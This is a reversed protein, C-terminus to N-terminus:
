TDAKQGKLEDALADAFASAATNEGIVIIVQGSPAIGVARARAIALRASLPSRYLSGNVDYIVQTPADIAAIAARTDYGAIRAGDRDPLFVAAVVSVQDQNNTATLMTVADAHTLKANAEALKADSVATTWGPAAIPAIRDAPGARAIVIWGYLSLLTLGALGTLAARLSVHATQALWGGLPQRRGFLIAFGTLLSLFVAFVVLGVREHDEAIAIDGANIAMAIIIAVRLGNAIFGAAVAVLM